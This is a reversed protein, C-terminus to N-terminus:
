DNDIIGSSDFIGIQDGEELSSISTQFIILQTVGTPNIELEFSDQSYLFTSLVFLLSLIRKM